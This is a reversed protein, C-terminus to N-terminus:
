EDLSVGYRIDLYKPDPYDAGTVTMDNGLHFSSGSANSWLIYVDSLTYLGASRTMERDYYLTVYGTESSYDFALIPDSISRADYTPQLAPPVGPSQLRLIGTLSPDKMYVNKGANSEMLMSGYAFTIFGGSSYSGFDSILTLRDYGGWGNQTMLDSIAIHNIGPAQASSENTLWYVYLWSETQDGTTTSLDVSTEPTVSIPELNLRYQNRQNTPTYSVGDWYKTEPDTYYGTQNTSPDYQIYTPAQESDFLGTLETLERYKTKEVQEIDLSLAWSSMLAIVVALLVLMGGLYGNRFNM